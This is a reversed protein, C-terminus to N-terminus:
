KSDKTEKRKAIQGELKKITEESYRAYRYLTHRKVFDYANTDLLSLRYVNTSFNLTNSGPYTQVIDATIAFEAPLKISPMYYTKKYNDIASDYFFAFYTSGDSERILLLISISGRKFSSDVIDFIYGKYSNRKLDIMSVSYDKGQDPIPVLQVNLKAEVVPKICPEVCYSWPVLGAAALEELDKCSDQSEAVFQSFRKVQIKNVTDRM